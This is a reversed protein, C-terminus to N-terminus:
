WYACHWLDSKGQGQSERTVLRYAALDELVRRTTSTPLGLATAVDAKGPDSCASGVALAILAISIASAAHRGRRHLYSISVDRRATVKSGVRPWTSTRVIDRM